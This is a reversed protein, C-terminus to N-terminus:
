KWATVILKEIRGLASPKEFASSTWYRGYADSELSGPAGRAVGPIGGRPATSSSEAAGRDNRIRSSGRAGLWAPVRRPM